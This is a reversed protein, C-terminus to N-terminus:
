GAAAPSAAPSAASQADGLRKRLLAYARSIDKFREESRRDGGNTDPHHRKALEKYR